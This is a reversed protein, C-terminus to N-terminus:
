RRKMGDSSPPKNSNHSNKNVLIELEEVRKQLKEITGTLESIQKQHAAILGQILSVVAEPGADYVKLIDEREM